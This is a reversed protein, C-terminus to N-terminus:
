TERPIWCSNPRKWKRNVRECGRTSGCTFARWIRAWDHNGTLCHNAADALVLDAVQRTVMVQGYRKLFQLNTFGIPAGDDEDKARDAFYFVLCQAAEDTGTPFHHACRNPSQTDFMGGQLDMAAMFYHNEVGGIDGQGANRRGGLLAANEARKQRRTNSKRGM